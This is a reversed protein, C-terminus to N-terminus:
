PGGRRITSFYGEPWYEVNLGLKKSNRVRVYVRRFRDAETNDPPWYGITYKIRSSEKNLVQEKSFFEVKQILGDEYVIFENRGINSVYEGYENRVQVEVIALGSGLTLRCIVEPEEEDMNLPSSQYSQGSSPAPLLLSLLVILCIWSLQKLRRIILNYRLMTMESNLIGGADEPWRVIRM